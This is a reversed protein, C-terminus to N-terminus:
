LDKLQEELLRAVEELQLEEVSKDSNSNPIGNEINMEEQGAENLTEELEDFVTTLYEVVKLINSCNMLISSDLEIGFDKEMNSLATPATLSDVGMDFFGLDAEPLKGEPFMLLQAFMHRLYNEVLEEREFGLLLYYDKLFPSIKNDSMKSKSEEESDAHETTKTKADSEEILDYMWYRDKEFPYTPLSVRYEEGTFFNDYHVVYGKTWAEAAKFLKEHGDEQYLSIDIESNGNSSDAKNCVVNDSPNESVYSLLAESLSHYSDAIFAARYKGQIRGTSLTFAFDDFDPM